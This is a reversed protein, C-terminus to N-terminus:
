QDDVRRPHVMWCLLGSRNAGVDPVLGVTVRVDVSVDGHRRLELQWEKPEGDAMMALQVRFADRSPTAVLAALPKRHLYHPDRRLLNAAADNADQITGYRDTLMIPLPARQFVQRYHRVADDMAAQQNALRDGQDRLEEEAVKLEELSTMLLASLNPLAEAREVTPLDGANDLLSSARQLVMRRCHTLASLTDAAELEHHM